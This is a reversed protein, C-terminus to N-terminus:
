FVSEYSKLQLLNSKSLYPVNLWMQIHSIIFNFMQRMFLLVSLNFYLNTSKFMFKLPLFSKRCLSEFGCGESMASNAVQDLRQGRAELRRRVRVTPGWSTALARPPRVDAAITVTKTM